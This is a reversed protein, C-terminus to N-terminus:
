GETWLVTHFTSVVFRVLLLRVQYSASAAGFKFDQPFTYVDARVITNILFALCIVAFAGIM